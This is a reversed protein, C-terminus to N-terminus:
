FGSINNYTFMKGLIRLKNTIETIKAIEECFEFLPLVNSSMRFSKINQSVLKPVLRILENINNIYTQKIHEESYKGKQFAGLQLLKEDISNEYVVSGDRKTRPELWQCCVSLSM